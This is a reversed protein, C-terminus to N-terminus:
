NLLWLDWAEQHKPPLLNEDMSNFVCPKIILLKNVKQDIHVRRWIFYLHDISVRIYFGSEQFLIRLWCRERM